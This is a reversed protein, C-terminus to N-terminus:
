LIGQDTAASPMSMGAANIATSQTKMDSKSKLGVHKSKRKKASYFSIQSIIKGDTGVLTALIQNGNFTVTFDPTYIVNVFQSADSQAIAESDVGGTGNINQSKIKPMVATVAKTSTDKTKHYGSKEIKASDGESVSDVYQAESTFATIWEIEANHMAEYGSPNDLWFIYTKNLLDNAGDLDGTPITPDAFIAIAKVLQISVNEGFKIKKPIDMGVFDYLVHVKIAGM